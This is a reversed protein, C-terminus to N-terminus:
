SSAWRSRTRDPDRDPQVRLAGPERLGGPRRAEPEVRRPDHGPAALYVREHQTTTTKHSVTGLRDAVARVHRGARPGEVLNGDGDYLWTSDEISDVSSEMAQAPTNKGSEVASRTSQFRDSLTANVNSRTAGNLSLVVTGIMAGMALASVMATTWIIRNRLGRDVLFRM